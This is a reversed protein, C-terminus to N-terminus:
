LEKSIEAVFDSWGHLLRRPRWRQGYYDVICRSALPEDIDLSSPVIPHVLSQHIILHLLCAISFHALVEMPNWWLTPKQILLGVVGRRKGEREDGKARGQRQVSYLCDSTRKRLRKASAIPPCWGQSGTKSVQEQYM